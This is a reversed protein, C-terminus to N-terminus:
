ILFDMSWSSAGKVAAPGPGQEGAEEQWAQYVRLCQDWWNGLSRVRLFCCAFRSSKEKCNAKFTHGNNELCMCEEPHYDIKLPKEVLKTDYKAKGTAINIPSQREGRAAPYHHSWSSPGPFVSVLQWKLMESSNLSRFYFHHYIILHLLFYFYGTKYCYSRLSLSPSHDMSDLARCTSILVGRRCGKERGRYIM